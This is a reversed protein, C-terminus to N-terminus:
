DRPWLLGAATSERSDALLSALDNGLPTTTNKSLIRSLVCMSGDGGRALHASHCIAVLHVIIAHHAVSSGYVIQLAVLVVFDHGNTNLGTSYVLCMRYCTFSSDIAMCSLDKWGDSTQFAFSVALVLRLRELSCRSGM